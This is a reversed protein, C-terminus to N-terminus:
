REITKPARQDVFEPTGIMPQMGLDAMRKRIEPTNLVANVHAKLKTVVKKPVGAPAYFVNWSTVVYDPFGSEKVTPLLAASLFIAATFVPM